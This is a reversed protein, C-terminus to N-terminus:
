KRLRIRRLYALVRGSFRGLGLRGSIFRNGLRMWDSGLLIRPVIGRLFSRDFRVLRAPPKWHPMSRAIEERAAQLAQWYAGYVTQRLSWPMVGYDLQGSQWWWTGVLSRFRAFHFVVLPQDDVHVIDDAVECRFRAWNWPALNVGPHTCEVVGEFRRPWEDLYKQDAYRGEELRDYCWELCRERWWDLCALGASDRRWGLVGVNFRGHKEYHALFNPFRHACTLISGRALETWLPEPSSFFLLDADLYILAEIGSNVQLLYRPWCPSLTFYYEARSRTSKVAALGADAQELKWLPVWHVQPLGLAYLAREAQSDLALVWLTGKPDHKALSRALAVGQLLFGSDFYTCYQNM